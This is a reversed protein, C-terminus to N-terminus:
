KSTVMVPYQLMDNDDPWDGGTDMHRNFLVSGCKHASYTASNPIM